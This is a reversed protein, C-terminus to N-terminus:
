RNVLLSDLRKLPEKSLAVKLAAQEVDNEAAQQGYINYLYLQEPIHRSHEKGALDLLPYMLFRDSARAPYSTDDLRFMHKPVKDFLAARFTRLQSAQWKAKRIDKFDEETYEGSWVAAAGNSTIYSGYTMWCEPDEYEKLVRALAHNGVLEDDMDLMAIISDGGHVRSVYEFCHLMNALNGRRNTTFHPEYLVSQMGSEFLEANSMRTILDETGDTSPDLVSLVTHKVTQKLLSARWAPIFNSCNRGVSVVFIDKSKV